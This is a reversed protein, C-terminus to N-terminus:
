YAAFVQLRGQFIKTMPQARLDVRPAESPHTPTEGALSAEMDFFCNTAVDTSQPVVALIQIRGVKVDLGAVV